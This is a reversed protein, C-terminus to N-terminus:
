DMRMKAGPRPATPLGPSQVRLPPAIERRLPEVVGQLVCHIRRSVPIGILVVGLIALVVPLVSAPLVGLYLPELM